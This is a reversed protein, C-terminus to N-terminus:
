VVDMGLGRAVAALAKVAGSEGGSTAADETRDDGHVETVTSLVCYVPAGNDESAASTSSSSLFSSQLHTDSGSEHQLTPRRSQGASGSLKRPTRKETMNKILEQTVEVTEFRVMNLRLYGDEDEKYRGSHLFLVVFCRKHVERNILRSM